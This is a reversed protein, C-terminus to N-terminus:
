KEKGKIIGAIFLVTLVVVSAALMHKSQVKIEDSIIKMVQRRIKEGEETSCDAQESIAAAINKQEAKSFVNKDELATLVKLSTEDDLGTAKSVRSAFENKTMGIVCGKM